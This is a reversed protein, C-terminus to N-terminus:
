MQVSDRLKKVLVSEGLNPQVLSVQQLEITLQEIQGRKLRRTIESPDANQFSRTALARQAPSGLSTWISKIDVLSWRQQGLYHWGNKRPAYIFTHLETHKEKATTIYAKSNQSAVVESWEVVYTAESSELLVPDYLFALGLVDCIYLRLSDAPESSLGEISRKTDEDLELNQVLMATTVPKPLAVATASSPPKAFHIRWKQVTTTDATGPV